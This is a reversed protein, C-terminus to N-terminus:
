SFNGPLDVIKPNIVKIANKHILKEFIAQLHQDGGGGRGWHADIDLSTLKEHIVRENGTLAVKDVIVKDFFTLIVV